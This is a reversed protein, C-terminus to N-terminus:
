TNFIIKSYTEPNIEPSGINKEVSGYIQKQLMIVSNESSYSHLITHLRPLTMSGAKNKKMLIAKAIRPRKNNWSFKQITQAPETFFTMPLKIPITIFRYIAKPLIGM